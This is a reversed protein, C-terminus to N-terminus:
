TTRRDSAHERKPLENVLEIRRPVKYAALRQALADRLSGETPASPAAPDAVVYATLVEGRRGHAEGVVRARAVGALDLLAEEIQRPYVHYGTNIMGDMRGALWVYGKSDIRALDGLACWGDADTFSRVTMRSRTHLEGAGEGREEIPAIRLEVGPVARGCSAALREDGEVIASHASQDLVTLPWGGELRGYVQVLVPGLARAAALLQGRPLPAGGYLVRRLSECRTDNEGLESVLRSLMGSTMGTSTIAFREVADVTEVPDFRDAIVQGVGMHLFPFSGMLGTGHLLQQLTLMREREGRWPGGYAGSRYLECNLEVTAHWNAYSIPIAILEGDQVARPYLHLTREGPINEDPM